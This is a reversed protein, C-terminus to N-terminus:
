IRFILSHCCYLFYERFNLYKKEYVIYKLNFTIFTSWTLQKKTFFVSSVFRAINIRFIISDFQVPKWILHPSPRSNVLKVLLSQALRKNGPLQIEVQVNGVAEFFKNWLEFTTVISQIFFLFPINTKCHVM